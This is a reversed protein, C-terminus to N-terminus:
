TSSTLFNLLPCWANVYANFGNINKWIGLQNYINCTSGPAGAMASPTPMMERSFPYPFMVPNEM